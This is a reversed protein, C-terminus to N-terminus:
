KNNCQAGEFAFLVWSPLTINPVACGLLNIHAAGLM